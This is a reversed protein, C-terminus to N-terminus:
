LLITIETGDAMTYIEQGQADWTAHKVCAQSIIREFKCVNLEYGYIDIYHDSYEEFDIGMSNLLDTWKNM